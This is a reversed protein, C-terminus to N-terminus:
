GGTSDDDDAAEVDHEQAEDSELAELASTARSQMEELAERYKDGPLAAFEELLDEIEQEFDLDDAPKKKAMAIGKAIGRQILRRANKSILPDLAEQEACAMLDYVLKKPNNANESSLVWNVVAADTIEEKWRNPESVAEARLIKVYKQLDKAAARWVASRTGWDEFLPALQELLTM